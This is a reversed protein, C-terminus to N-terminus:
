KLILSEKNQQWSKKLSYWVGTMGLDPYFFPLHVYHWDGVSEGGGLGEFNVDLICGMCGEYKKLGNVTKNRELYKTSNGIYGM